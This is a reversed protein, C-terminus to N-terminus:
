GFHWCFVTLIQLIFIDRALVICGIICDISQCNFIVSWSHLVSDTRDAQRGAQRGPRLYLHYKSSIRTRTQYHSGRDTQGSWVVPVFLEWKGTQPSAQVQHVGTYCWPRREESQPAAPGGGDGPVDLGYNSQCILDSKLRSCFWRPLLRQDM